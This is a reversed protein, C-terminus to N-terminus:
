PRQAANFQQSFPLSPDNKTFWRDLSSSIREAARGDGFPNACRHLQSHETDNDLIRNAHRVIEHENMGVLVQLGLKISETRETFERLVLTPKHLACADEQVGGSDTMVLSSQAILAIFKDYAVPPMLRIQPINALEKGVSNQVAPNPHLPFRVQCQPRQRVIQRLAACIMSLKDRWSERRHVTVLISEGLETTSQNARRPSSQLMWNLSDVSTNGTLVILSPDIGEAVLNSRALGTPAFHISAMRAILQRNLEEPFPSQLNQTRLGAEVHAIPIEAYFAALSSAMATSTDGQVIVLDHQRQALTKSCGAILSSTLTSLATGSRRLSVHLDPALGFIAATKKLIEKHQGTFIVDVLHRNRKRLASIVPFLKIVEPRTGIFVAIKKFDPNM